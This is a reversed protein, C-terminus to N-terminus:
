GPGIGSPLFREAACCHLVTPSRIATIIGFWRNKHVLGAAGYVLGALPAPSAESTREDDLATVLDARARRFPAPSLVGPDMSMGSARIGMRREVDSGPRSWMALHRRRLLGQGLRQPLVRVLDRVM